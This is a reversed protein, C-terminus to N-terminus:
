APVAEPAIKPPLGRLYDLGAHGAPEFVTIERDGKAALTTQIRWDTNGFVKFFVDFKDAAEKHKVLYTSKFHIIDMGLVKNTKISIRLYVDDETEGSPLSFAEEPEGFTAYLIDADADYQVDVMGQQDHEYRWGENAKRIRAVLAKMEADM